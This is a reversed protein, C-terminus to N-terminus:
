SGLWSKLAEADALFRVPEDGQVYEMMAFHNAGTRRIAQLYRAWAGDGESLPRRCVRGARRVWHFVHINSLYDLIHNLGALRDCISLGVAPQWYTRVTGRDIEELLAATSDGSDTLTNSHYEFSVSLGVAKALDAIRRSDRVVISRFKVSAEKSARDGAWVRVTPACLAVATALVDGVRLGAAESVGVKYYSGDGSRDLRRGEDISWSGRGAKPRRAPRPRRRGM